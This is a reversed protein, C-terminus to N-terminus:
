TGIIDVRHGCQYLRIGDSIVDPGRHVAPDGFAVAGLDGFASAQKSKRYGREALRGRL